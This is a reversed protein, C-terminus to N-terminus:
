SQIIKKNRHCQRQSLSRWVRIHGEWSTHTVCTTDYMPLLDYSMRTYQVMFSTELELREFTPASVPFVGVSLCVSLCIHSWVNAAVSAPPLFRFLEDSNWVSSQVRLCQLCYCDPWSAEKQKESSSFLSLEEGFIQQQNLVEQYDVDKM